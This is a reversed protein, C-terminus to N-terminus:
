GRDLAFGFRVMSEFLGGPLLRRMTTFAHAESTVLTRLPPHAKAVIQAVARAVVDPSPAKTEFGKMTNLARDRWPTYAELKAGQPQAFLSTGIAGPEVMSVSIGFPKLEARLTECYGEVAFKSANYYGWFPVPVLGALSSLTVIKGSRQKRMQPLAALVTRAVGFFNTEFQSRAQDLTLEEIAGAILAGANNVLVDLRGTREVITDICARVSEDSCVDLTLAETGAPSTARRSGGFVLYGDAALRAAIAAGIGSSSGTVLAVPQNAM